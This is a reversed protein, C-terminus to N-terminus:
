AKVLGLYQKRDNAFGPFVAPIDSNGLRREIIEGLVTRFDTTLV